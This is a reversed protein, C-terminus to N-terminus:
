SRKKIERIITLPKRIKNLSNYKPYIRIQKVKRTQNHAEDMLHEKRKYIHCQLSYFESNIILIIPTTKIGQPTDEHKAEECLGKTHKAM